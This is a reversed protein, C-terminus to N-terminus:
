MKNERQFTKPSVGVYHKFYKRFTFQEPFNLEESVQKVSKRSQILLKKANAITVSQIWLSPSQGTFRKVLASFHGVSLHAEEAYFEVKRQTKYNQHVSQLFNYAISSTNNSEASVIQRNHFYLSLFEMMIEQKLLMTIQTNMQLEEKDNASKQEFLLIRERTQAFLQIQNEDITLCPTQFLKFRLLSSFFPKLISFFNDNNDTIASMEADESHSLVHVHILPSVFCFSGRRFNYLKDNVVIAVTGQVCLIIGVKGNWETSKEIDSIM